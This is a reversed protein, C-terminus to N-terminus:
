HYHYSICCCNCESEDYIEICDPLYRITISSDDIYHVNGDLESEIHKISATISCKLWKPTWMSKTNIFLYLEMIDRMPIRGNSNSYKDIMRKKLKSKNKKSLPYNFTFQSRCLPCKNNIHIFFMRTICTGHFVHNCPLMYQINDIKEYCISCKEGVKFYKNMFDKDCKKDYKDLSDEYIKKAKKTKIKKKDEREIRKIEDEIDQKTSGVYPITPNVVLEKLRTWLKSKNM